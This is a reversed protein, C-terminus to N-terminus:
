SLVLYFLEVDFTQPVAFHRSDLKSDDNVDDNEGFDLQTNFNSRIMCQM